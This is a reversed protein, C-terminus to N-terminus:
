RVRTAPDGFLVWSRMVDNDDFGNAWARTQAENLLEGLAQGRGRAVLIRIAERYVEEQDTPESTTTSGWFAMAGGTTGKVVAEGLSDRDVLQYMGNMCGMATVIGPRERNTLSAVSDSNFLNENAWAYTSGHGMYGVLGRGANLAELINARITATALQSLYLAQVNWAGGFLGAFGRTAAEFDYIRDQNDSVLTVDRFWAAEPATEYAVIKDVMAELEAQTSVPLRGIALDPLQDSGEVAVYWNDSAAFLSAMQIMPAPLFERGGDLYDHPDYTGDGVVLAFRPAPGTWSRRAHGFFARIAAPDPIGATFEDYLDTVDITAPVLGDARRRNALREIEVGGAGLFSPHSVALWDARNTAAHWSSPRNREIAFPVLFGTPGVLEYRGGSRVASDNFRAVGGREEAGSHLRANAPDSVDLVTVTTGTFGPVAYEGPANGSFSAADSAAGFVRRYSLRTYNPYVLDYSAGTDAPLDLEVTNAGAV